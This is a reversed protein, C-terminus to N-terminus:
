ASEPLTVKFTSITQVAATVISTNSTNLEAGSVAVAGDFRALAAAADAASPSAGAEYCRFWGATGTAVGPGSWTEAPAKDISGDDNPDDFNIGTSSGDSYVTFLLTGAAADDAGAPQTGSYVNIFCATFITKFDATGMMRKRCGSSVRLTM